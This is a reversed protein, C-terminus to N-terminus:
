SGGSAESPSQLRRWEDQNIDVPFKEKLREIWGGYAAEIKQRRLDAVISEKLRQFLDESDAASARGRYHRAYHDRVEEATIGAPDQLDADMVKEMLLRARLRQKWTDVSVASEVLTRDFVGPPYDATLAAVAGDLEADSVSLGLEEARRSLVIEVSLENLLNSRAEAAVAAGPEVSDPYATKVLELAELFARPTVKRDGSRILYEEADGSAGPGCGSFGSAAWLLCLCLAWLPGKGRPVTSATTQPPSGAFASRDSLIKIKKIILM